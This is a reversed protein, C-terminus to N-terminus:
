VHARGIELDGGDHGDSPWHIIVLKSKPDIGHPPRRDVTFRVVQTEKRGEIRGNMGLYIYGNREYDPHLAVGVALGEVQLLTEVQSANQNDDVALLRGPGAWFNLHQLIFLRNTGPEPTLSLPQKPTLKPFARAVKYPLPPEPSGVVHSDNWPLRRELGFPKEAAPSAVSILLFLPALVLSRPM